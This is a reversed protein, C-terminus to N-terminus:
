SETLTFTGPDGREVVEVNGLFRLKEDSGGGFGAPDRACVGIVAGDRRM